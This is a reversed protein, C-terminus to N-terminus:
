EFIYLPIMTEIILTTNCFICPQNESIPQLDTAGKADCEPCHWVYILSM